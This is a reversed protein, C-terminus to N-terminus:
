QVGSRVGRLSLLYAVVDAVEDANLSTPQKSPQESIAYSVLDKKQLSRLRGQSDIIQVSYTDENLRRGTITEENTTVMRVPRNIPLLATAPDVLNLQLNDPTRRLGIDSLDPATYAGVGDVRHCNSCQGKGEFLAKGRVPDGVRVAVGDPNFGARIYATIAAIEGADFDFAPMRGEAAGNSITNALDEDSQVNRFQGRRLDIGDVLDGQPGHCLACQQSYIRLGEQIAETTYRHDGLEQAQLALPVALVLTALSARLLGAILRRRM